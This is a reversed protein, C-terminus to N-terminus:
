KSGSKPIWAMTESQSPTPTPETAPEPMEYPKCNGCPEYGKAVLDEAAGTYYDKNSASIKSTSGCDPDHFKKSSTNLIYYPGDPEHDTTPAFPHTPTPETKTAPALTDANANKIVSFSVTKGDSTCKIDGQLDTRYVKVDADRLRSLTDETPHGYSNGAGVSIVAYGPMIERLFPYTTSTDSGHHGVKLVTASLDAGSNLIAQEAEREADGTFLFKTEGYTIMLVISTDNTDSGGNVGLIKVSASGLSYTDDVAPIVIGGGSKDAYKKFDDFADSDYRKAACLTLDAKTYNFAGPIGGVHDEHAHTGVVIDLKPVGATKLVSYITNSDAKNGGDILMYHGDCEVLAADAQGVDIFHISFTSNEPLTPNDTPKPDEAPMLTDTQQPDNSLESARRLAAGHDFSAGSEGISVLECASLQMKGEKADVCKGRVTIIDGEELREVEDTKKDFYFFIYFDNDKSGIYYNMLSKNTYEGTVEIIKDECISKNSLAAYFTLDGSYVTDTSGLQGSLGAPSEDAEVNKSAGGGCGVLSFICCLVLLMSVVSKKM